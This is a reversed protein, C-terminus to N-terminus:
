QANFYDLNTPYGHKTPDPKYLTRPAGTKDMVGFTDTAPDFRVVDGNPRTKSLTGAPPNHLFEHAKLAYDVANKAGFDAGHDKFHGDANQASSKNKTATWLPAKNAVISCKANHAWMGGVGVFYSPTDAVSFNYVRLPKNVVENRIVLADGNRSAIVDEDTIDKAETWGKGQVWLPHEGTLQFTDFETQLLRYSPAIRGFNDTVTQPRDAFSHAHRSLVQQGVVVNEIRVPGQPTLVPTGAAFSACGFDHKTAKVADALKGGYQTLRTALKLMVAPSVNKGIVKGLDYAGCQTAKTITDVADQGLLEALMALTDKPDNYFAKGLEVLGGLVDDLNTVLSLLDSVQEKLGTLLGKVFEYGYVLSGKIDSWLNGWFGQDEAKAGKNDQDPPTNECVDELFQCHNNKAWSQRAEKSFFCIPPPNCVQWVIGGSQGNHPVSQQAWASLAHTVCLVSVMVALVIRQLAQRRLLNLLM